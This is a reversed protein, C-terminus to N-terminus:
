FATSTNFSPCVAPSHLLPAVLILVGHTVDKDHNNSENTSDRLLRRKSDYSEVVSCNIVLVEQMSPVVVVVEENATPPTQHKAANSSQLTNTASLHLLLNYTANSVRHDCKWQRWVDGDVLRNPAMFKLNPKLEVLEGFVVQKCKRRKVWEHRTHQSAHVLSMKHM